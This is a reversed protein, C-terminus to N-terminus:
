FDGAISNAMTNDLQNDIEQNAFSELLNMVEEIKDKMEKDSTIEEM